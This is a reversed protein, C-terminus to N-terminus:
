DEELKELLRKKVASKIDKQADELIKKEDKFWQEQSKLKDIALHFGEKKASAYAGMIATFVDNLHKSDGEAKNLIASEFARRIDTVISLKAWQILDRTSCTYFIDEKAKLERIKQAVDVMSAAVSTEVGSKGAVITVETIPDPYEINLIVGFRSKFAKNLDKTGAYEDVPNMTGFFRFEKHPRVVKGDNSAVVVFKDDDLLSHLVFLIEPLAVNVEDVILWHGDKMAQLLIGDQWVTEGNKLTFKGVFDDVTTEGTLNFRTWTKKNKEAVHKVITTKGTGTEGVLLVPIDAKAAIEIMEIAKDQGAIQNPSMTLEIVSMDIPSPTSVAKLKEEAGMAKKMEETQKMDVGNVKIICEDEFWIEDSNFNVCFENEEEDYNLVKRKYVKGDELFEVIDGKKARTVEPGGVLEVAHEWVGGGAGNELVRGGGVTRIGTVVFEMGNAYGYGGNNPPTDNSVFGPLCRVKDGVKFKEEVTVEKKAEFLILEHEEFFVGDLDELEYPAKYAPHIAIVRRAPDIFRGHVVKDGIEFNFAM